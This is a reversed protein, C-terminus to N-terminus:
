KNKERFYKLVARVLGRIADERWGEVNKDSRYWEVAAEFVQERVPEKRQLLNWVKLPMSARPGLFCGYNSCSAFVMTDIKDKRAESDCLPCVQAASGNKKARSTRAFRSVGRGIKKVSM